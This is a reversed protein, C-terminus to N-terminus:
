DGLLNRAQQPAGHFARNEVNSTFAGECPVGLFYPEAYTKEGWSPVNPSGCIATIDPRPASATVPTKRAPTLAIPAAREDQMTEERERERVAARM